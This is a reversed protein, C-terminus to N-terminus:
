QSSSSQSSGSSRSSNRDRRRFGGRGGVCSSRQQCWQLPIGPTVLEAEVAAFLLLM